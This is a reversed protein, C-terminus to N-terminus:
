RMTVIEEASTPHIGITSDLQRKTIGAKMAAAFGQLMEAADAGAIHLGVVKDSAKDVILKIFTKDAVQSMAYKMPRFRSTYVSVEGYRAKAQEETLGCTAIEPIAFVATPLNDYEPYRSGGAFLREALLHGEKIAVPTLNFDNCVDGVAYISPVSTQQDPGVLIKGDERIAVGTERLGLNRTNARRGTACLFEDVCLSDGNSLKLVKGTDCKHVSMVDAHNIVDIGNAKFSEQVFVRVDMDFGRLIPDGRYILHVDVGLANFISAFEVAIYGGGKIAMSRPLSDMNLAGDSDIALEIGPIEPCVTRAGTAILIYRGTLTEGNVTVSNPGNLRGHGTYLTVGSDALLSLYIRNLRDIEADKHARLRSWSFHAQMDWGFTSAVQLSKDYAAAYALLKKPVCGRIVCTGGVKDEEVIAVKKGLGAAVRAARVGGSGAGIVILDYEASNITKM